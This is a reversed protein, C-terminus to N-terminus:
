SPQTNNADTISPNSQKRIQAKKRALNWHCTGGILFLVGSAVLPLFRTAILMGLIGVAGCLGYLFFKRADSDNENRCVRFWRFSSIPYVMTVVVIALATLFQIVKKM